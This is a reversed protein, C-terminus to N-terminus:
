TEGCALRRVQDEYDGAFATPFLLDVDPFTGLELLRWVLAAM